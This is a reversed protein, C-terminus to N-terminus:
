KSLLAEVLSLSPTCAISGEAWAAAFMWIHTRDDTSGEPWAAAFMWIHTM